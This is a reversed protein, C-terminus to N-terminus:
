STRRKLTSEMKERLSVTLRALKWLKRRRPLVSSEYVSPLTTVQLSIERVRTRFRTLYISTCPPCPPDQTRAQIVRFSIHIHCRTSTHYWCDPASVVPYDVRTPVVERRNAIQRDSDISHSVAHIDGQLTPPEPQTAFYSQPSCGPM